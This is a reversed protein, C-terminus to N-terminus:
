HKSASKKTETKRKHMTSERKEILYLALMARERKRKLAKKKLAIKRIFDFRLRTRKM